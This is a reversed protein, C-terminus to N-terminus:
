AGHFTYPINNHNLTETIIGHSGQWVHSKNVSINMAAENAYPWGFPNVMPLCCNQLVACSGFWLVCSLGLRTKRLIYQIYAVKRSMSIILLLVNDFWGKRRGIDQQLSCFGNELIQEHSCDCLIVLAIAYSYFHTFRDGIGFQYWKRYIM